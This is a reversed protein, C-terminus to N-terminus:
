LESGFKETQQWGMMGVFISDQFQGHLIINTKKQMDM